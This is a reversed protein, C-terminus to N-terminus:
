EIPIETSVTALQSRRQWIGELSYLILALWIIAYGILSSVSFPEKLIFVGILFQLTPAIYQLLGLMSLPVRQAAAAFLILPIATVVGSGVLLVGITANSNFMAAKGTLLFYSSATLAPLILVAMEGTLSEASGLQVKKKLLGYFGFTFALSLAIWPLSGYDITLYVVGLTAVGIALWQGTRLREKLVITGLLVNVLPNIFYGLSTEIVFGATIAWIYIFWNISLLIAASGVILLTKRQQIFPKVWSWRHRLSLLIVLFILSWIIRSVLIQSPPVSGLLHWYIPLVGWM